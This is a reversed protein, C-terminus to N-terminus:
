RVVADWLAIRSSGWTMKLPDRYDSFLISITSMPVLLKRELLWGINRYSEDVGVSTNNNNNQVERHSPKTKIAGPCERPHVCNLYVWSFFSLLRASRISSVSILLFPLAGFFAPRKLYLCQITSRSREWRCCLLLHSPIKGKNNNNSFEDEHCIHSFALVARTPRTSISQREDDDDDM